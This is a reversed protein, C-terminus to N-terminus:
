ILDFDSALVDSETDMPTCSKIHFIDVCIQVSTMYKIGTKVCQKLPVPDM